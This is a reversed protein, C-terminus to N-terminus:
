RKGKEPQPSDATEEPQPLAGAGREIDEVAYWKPQLGHREAWADLMDAFDKEAEASLKQPPWDEAAEGAQEFAQEGIREWMEDWSPYLEEFRVTRVRATYIACPGDEPYEEAYEERGAALAAERTPYSESWFREDTNSYVYEGNRVPESM